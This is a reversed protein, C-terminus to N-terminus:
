IFKGRLKQKWKRFLMAQKSQYKNGDMLTWSVIVVDLNNAIPGTM